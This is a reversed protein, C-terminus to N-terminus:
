VWKNILCLRKYGWPSGTGGCIFPPQLMWRKGQPVKWQSRTSAMNIWHHPWPHRWTNAWWLIREPIFCLSALSYMLATLKFYHSTMNQNKLWGYIALTIFLNLYIMSRNLFLFSVLSYHCWSYRSSNKPQKDTRGDTQEDTWRHTRRIINLLM